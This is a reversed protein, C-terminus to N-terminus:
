RQLSRAAPVSHPPTAQQATEKTPLGLLRWLLGPMPYSVTLNALALVLLGARVAGKQIRKWVVAGHWLTVPLLFAICMGYYGLIFVGLLIEEKLPPRVHPIYIALPAMCALQVLYPLLYPMWKM